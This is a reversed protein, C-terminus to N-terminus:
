VQHWVGRVQLMLPNQESEGTELGVDLERKEM